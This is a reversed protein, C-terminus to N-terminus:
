AKLWIKIWNAVEKYTHCVNAPHVDELIFPKLSSLNPLCLKTEPSGIIVAVPQNNNHARTLWKTQLTTLKGSQVISIIKPYKNYWKYEIWLHANFNEYYVDPIGGSFMGGLAQCFINDAKLIRNVSQKMRTESSTSM